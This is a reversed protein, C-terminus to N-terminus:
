ELTMARRLTGRLSGDANFTRIEISRPGLQLFASRVSRRPSRTGGSVSDTLLYGDARVEIGAVDSPAQELGIEYTSPAVPKLFIGVGAGVDIAGVARAIQAGNGDFGLVELRRGPGEASYRYSAAFSGQSRQNATGILYNDTRLEVRVVASPATMRFDYAGAASRSWDLSIPVSTAARGLADLQARTGQFVDLDVPGSIGPITGRDSYQWFSYGSWTNTPVEPCQVGYNAVWLPYRALASAGSLGSWFGWSTYIIPRVGAAAEVRELWRRVGSVITASSAGEGEEVDIVPPLDGAVLTGMEELLVDAQAIPDQSPRYFQYAGRKVGAARAGAWNQDFTDDITWRGYSARIFAFEVGSARVRPWNINGQFESVDIGRISGGVGCIRLADTSDDVGESDNTSPRGGCSATVLALLTISLTTLLPRSRKM